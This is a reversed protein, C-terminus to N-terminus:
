KVLLTTAGRGGANSDRTVFVKYRGPALATTEAVIETDSIRTVAATSGAVEVQTSSGGFNKGIVTLTTGGYTIYDIQVATNQQASVRAFSGLTLVLAILFLSNRVSVYM